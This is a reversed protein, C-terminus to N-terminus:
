VPLPQARQAPSKVIGQGGGAASGRM